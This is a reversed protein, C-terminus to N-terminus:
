HRLEGLDPNRFVIEHPGISVPVNAIPTEGVKEGDIWVEAWPTANLAMSGMPLKVELPVVKGAAVQMTRTSRYALTENVIEIQHSGAALMIRDAQSSGLLKGNEYLQVEVPASVTIWGSVPVSARSKLPVVLSATVGPQITVAQTVSGADSTLMVTHQGPTLDAITIPSVGRAIADIGIAAGPPDTRVELQGTSSGGLPLEIYQSVQTGGAVAIPIRRPDGSGRLELVHEGASLTLTVPTLGRAVGDVSALAGAPNTNVVVMGTAAAATGFHRAAFLGVGALAVFGLVAAVIKLSRSQTGTQEDESQEGITELVGAEPTSQRCPPEETLHVSALAAMMDSE